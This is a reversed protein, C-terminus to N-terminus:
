TRSARSCDYEVCTTSFHYAYELAVKVQLVRAVAKRRPNILSRWLRPMACCRVAEIEDVLFLNLGYFIKLM